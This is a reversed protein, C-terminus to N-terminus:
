PSRAPFTKQKDVAMLFIQERDIAFGSWEEGSLWRPESIPQGMPEGTLHFGRAQNGIRLTIELGPYSNAYDRFDSRYFKELADFFHGPDQEQIHVAERAVVRNVQKLEDVHNRLKANVLFAAFQGNLIYAGLGVMLLILIIPVFAIFVYTVILRRTLRWLMRHRIFGILRILYYIIVIVAAIKVALWLSGLIASLWFAHSFWGAVREAVWLIAGLIILRATFRAWGHTRYEHILAKLM